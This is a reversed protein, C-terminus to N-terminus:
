AAVFRDACVWEGTARDVIVMRPADQPFTTPHDTAIGLTGETGWPQGLYEENEAEDLDGDPTVFTVVHTPYLEPDEHGLDCDEDTCWCPGEEEAQQAGALVQGLAEQTIM